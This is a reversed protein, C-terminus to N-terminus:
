EEANVRRQGPRQGETRNQSVAATGARQEQTGDTSPPEAPARKGPSSNSLAPPAISADDSSGARLELWDKLRRETIEVGSNRLIERVRRIGVRAASERVFTAFEADAVCDAFLDSQRAAIQERFSAKVEEVSNLGKPQQKQHAKTGREPLRYYAARIAGASVGDRELSGFVESLNQGETKAADIRSLNERVVDMAKMSPSETEPLFIVVHITAYFCINMLLLSVLHLLLPFFHSNFIDNSSVDHWFCQCEIVYRAV